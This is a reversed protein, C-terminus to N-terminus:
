FGRHLHEFEHMANRVAEYREKTGEPADPKVQFEKGNFELFPELSRLETKINDPYIIRM